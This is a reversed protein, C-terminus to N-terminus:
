SVVNDLSVTLFFTIHMASIYYVLMRIIDRLSLVLFFTFCETTKCSYSISYYYYFRDIWSVIDGSSSVMFSTLILHFLQKNCSAVGIFSILLNISQLQIRVLASQLLYTFEISPHTQLAAHCRYDIKLRQSHMCNGYICQLPCTCRGFINDTVHWLYCYFM